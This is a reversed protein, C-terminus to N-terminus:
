REQLSVTREHPQEDSEPLTSIRVKVGAARAELVAREGGGNLACPIYVVRSRLMLSLLEVYSVADLVTM